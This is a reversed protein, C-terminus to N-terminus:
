RLKLCVGWRTHESKLDISLKEYSLEILLEKNYSFYDPLGDGGLAMKHHAQLFIPRGGEEDM